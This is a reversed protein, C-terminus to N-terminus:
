NESKARAVAEDWRAYLPVSGSRLGWQEVWRIRTGAGECAAGGDARREQSEVVACGRKVWTSCGPTSQGVADRVIASEHSCSSSLSASCAWTPSRRRDARTRSALTQLVEIDVIRLRLPTEAGARRGERGACLAEGRALPVLLIAPSVAVIVVLLCVSAVLLVSSLLAIWLVALLLIPALLAIRLVTVLVLLLLLLKLGLLLLLTLRRHLNRLPWCGAATARFGGYRSRRRFM